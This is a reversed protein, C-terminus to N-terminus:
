RVKHETMNGWYRKPMHSMRCKPNYRAEIAITDYFRKWLSQYMLENQEEKPMDFEELNM